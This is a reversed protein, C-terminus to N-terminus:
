QKSHSDKAKGTWGGGAKGGKDGPRATKSPQEDSQVYDETAQLECEVCVPGFTLCWGSQVNVAEGRFLEKGNEDTATLTATLGQGDDTNGFCVKVQVNEIM